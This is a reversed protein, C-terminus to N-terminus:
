QAPYLQAITVLRYGRSQLAAITPGLAALDGANTGHMLVVAGNFAHSLIHDTIEQGSYGRWGQPDVNWRIVRYGAAAADAQIEPTNNGYPPRFYPKTSIGAITQIAEDAKRLQEQREASTIATFLPHSWSHNMITHGSAVMRRVLDPNAVAWQGTVGFSAKVGYADLTDLIQPMFGRVTDTDITIAIVPGSGPSSRGVTKWQQNATGYCDWQVMLAGDRLSWAYLDLCKQSFKNRLTSVAGNVFTGAWRQNDGGHCAYQVVPAANTTSWNMVELCKGSHAFRLEFYGDSLPIVEILQNPGGWCSWQAAGGFNALSLGFIELCKGSHASVLNVTRAAAPQGAPPPCRPTISLADSAFAQQGAQTRVRVFYTGGPVLQVLVVRRINSAYPGGTSFRSFGADVALDVYQDGLGSPTWTLTVSVTGDERCTEGSLSLDTAAGAPAARAPLAIALLLVLLGAFACPLRGKLM